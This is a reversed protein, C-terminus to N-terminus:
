ARPPENLLFVVYGRFWPNAALGAPANWDGDEVLGIKFPFRLRDLRGLYAGYGAITHRGQYTQLVVEDVVGGLAALGAPDREGGWDLLGTVSLRCGVPLRGKLDRLFVAYDDLHSTRADFDIQVGVVETGAARWRNLRAQIQAYIAPTWSLTHVRYALWVAKGHIRVPAGGQAILRAPMGDARAAEVQGQLIYLSHAKALVPQPAVAAWLWFQDYDAARVTQALSLGPSVVLWLGLLAAFRRVLRVLFVEPRRGLALHRLEDEPNQVV